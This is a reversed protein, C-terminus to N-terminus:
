RYLRDHLQVAPMPLRYDNASEDPVETWDLAGEGSGSRSFTEIIQRYIVLKLRVKYIFITAILLAFNEETFRTIYCVLASADIAVLILLIM